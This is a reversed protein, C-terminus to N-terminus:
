VNIIVMVYLNPTFKTAVAISQLIFYQLFRCLHVKFSTIKKLLGCSKEHSESSLETKM